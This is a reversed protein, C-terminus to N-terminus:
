ERPGIGEMTAAVDALEPTYNHSNDLEIDTPQNRLM